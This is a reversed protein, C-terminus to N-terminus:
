IFYANEEPHKLFNKEKKPKEATQSNHAKTNEKYKGKRKVSDKLNQSQLRENIKPFNKAM